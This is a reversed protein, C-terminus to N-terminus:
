SNPFHMWNFLWELYNIPIADLRILTLTCISVEWTIFYHHLPYHLISFPSHRISFSSHIISLPSHHLSFKQAYNKFHNSPRLNAGLFFLDSQQIKSSFLIKEWEISFIVLIWKRLSLSTARTWYEKFYNAAIFLSYVDFKM